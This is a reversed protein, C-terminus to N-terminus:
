ESTIQERFEKCTQALIGSRAEAKVKDINLTKEIEDCLELSEQKRGLMALIKARNMQCVAYEYGREELTKAIGCYLDIWNDGTYNIGYTKLSNGRILGIGIKKKDNIEVPNYTEKMWFAADALLKVNKDKGACIQVDDRSDRASVYKVVLTEGNQRLGM